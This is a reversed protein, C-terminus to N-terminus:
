HGGRQKKQNGSDSVPMRRRLDYKAFTIIQPPLVVTSAAVAVAKFTAIIAPGNVGASWTPNKAGATTEILYAASGGMNSGGVYAFTDSVTFGSDITATTANTDGGYGTVLVENDQSPTVSGPQNN